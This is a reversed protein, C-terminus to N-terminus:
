LHTGPDKNEHERGNTPSQASNLSQTMELLAMGCRILRIEFPM